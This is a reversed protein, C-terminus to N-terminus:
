VLRSIISDGAYKARQAAEIVEERVKGEGVWKAIVAEAGIPQLGISLQFFLFTAAEQATSGSEIAFQQITRRYGSDISAPNIGLDALAKNVGLVM